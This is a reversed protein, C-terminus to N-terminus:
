DLVHRKHFPATLFRLMSKAGSLWRIRAGTKHNALLRRALYPTVTEVRDALINFIGKAREWEEPKDVYQDTILRTIVM